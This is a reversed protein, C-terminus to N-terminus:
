NDRASKGLNNGLTFGKVKGSKSLRVMVRERGGYM